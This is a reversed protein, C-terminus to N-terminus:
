QFKSKLKRRQQSQDRAVSRESPVASSPFTSPATREPKTALIEPLLICSGKKKTIISLSYVGSSDSTGDDSKEELETWSCARHDLGIGFFLFFSTLRNTM